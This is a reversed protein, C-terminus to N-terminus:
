SPDRLPVLGDTLLRFLLDTIAAPSLQGPQALGPVAGSLLRTLVRPDPAEDLEGREVARELITRFGDETPKVYRKYTDRFLAGDAQLEVTLGPVGNVHAPRSMNAVLQALYRRLDEAASGTDPVVLEDASGFLADRALNVKSEWVRYILVRNSCARQAVADITMSAYGVEALVELTADLIARRKALDPPRGPGRRAGDPPPAAM